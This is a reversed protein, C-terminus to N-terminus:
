RQDSTSLRTQQAAWNLLDKRAYVVRRSFKRFPPGSGQIRWKGLTIASVRLLEAAESATLFTLQASNSPLASNVDGRRAAPKLRLREAASRRVHAIM